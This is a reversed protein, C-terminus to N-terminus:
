AAILNALYDDDWVATKLRLRSPTADRPRAPSTQRWTNEAHCLKESRARNPHPMRRRPLDHVNVWHLGNEVAWHDRVMPGLREARWASSTLYYRTERETRAGIERTSDIVVVGKLGPWDHREQLWAVDHIVIARRTEIRGHDGDVTEDASVTTDM